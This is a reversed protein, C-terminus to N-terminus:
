LSSPINGGIVIKIGGRDSRKIIRREQNRKLIDSAILEKVYGSFNAGEIHRLIETDKDNTINFSVTKRVKNESM